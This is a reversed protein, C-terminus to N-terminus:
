DQRQTKGFFPIKKSGVFPMKPIPMTGRGVVSPGGGVPLNKTMAAAKAAVAAAAQAAAAAKQAQAAAPTAAPKPAQRAPAKPAASPTSPKKAAEARLAALESASITVTGFDKKGKKTEESYELLSKGFSPNGQYWGNEMAIKERRRGLETEPFTEIDSLILLQDTEDYYADKDLAGGFGKYLSSVVTERTPDMTALDLDGRPKWLVLIPPKWLFSFVYALGESFSPGDYAPTYRPFAGIGPADDRVQSVGTWAPIKGGAKKYAASWVPLSFLVWLGIVSAFHNVPATFGQPDGTIEDVFPVNAVGAASFLYTAGELGEALSMKPTTILAARRTPRPPALPGQLTSGFAPAPSFSSCSPAFLLMLALGACTGTGM